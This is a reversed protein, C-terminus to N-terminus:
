CAHNVKSHAHHWDAAHPTHRYAEWAPIGATFHLLKAERNPGYEDALWNWQTPLEGVDDAPMWAFTHLERGSMRQVEEPTIRRWAPHACNILMLSSWNKCPYDENAAEMPTGVYKRPHQTKYFHKVVQVAKDSERLAWVESIDAKCVMDAGDAFVAWGQYGQLFPILFRTYIFANTGDRQSPDYFSAFLPLHLPILAVPRSAQHLVSSCFTHAGVEERADFGYFLPIVEEELLNRSGQVQRAVQLECM